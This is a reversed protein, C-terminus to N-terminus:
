RLKYIMTFGPHGSASAGPIFVLNPNRVTSRYVFKGIFFGLASGFIVDSAWHKDNYVRAIATLGAISYSLVPVWITERYESAFVAAVAFIHSSHGSPFSTHEWSGFPGEWIRPDPPDNAGPRHRQTAYKFAYTFVATIAIAKLSTLGVRTARQNDTLAGVAWFGLSLPITYVGKGLPDFFYKDAQDKWETQNRQFYDRIVDDQTYAIVTVGSIAAFTGWQKGKWRVPSKLIEWSDTFYSKIYDGNLRVEHSGITDQATAPALSSLSVLLTLFINRILIL